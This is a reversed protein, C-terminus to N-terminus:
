SSSKQNFKNFERQLPHYLSIRLKTLETKSFFINGYEWELYVHGLKRVLPIRWGRGPCKLVNNLTHATIGNEDFVDLGIVLPLDAQVVIDLNILPETPLIFKLSGLSEQKGV